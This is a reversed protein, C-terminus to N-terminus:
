CCRKMEREYIKACRPDDNRRYFAEEKIFDSM